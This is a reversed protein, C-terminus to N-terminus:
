VSRDRPQTGACKPTGAVTLSVDECLSTHRATSGAPTALIPHCPPSHCAARTPRLALSLELRVVTRGTQQPEAQIGAWRAKTSRERAAVSPSLDMGRPVTAREPSRIPTRPTKGPSRGPSDCQAGEPSLALERRANGPSSLRNHPPSAFRFPSGTGQRAHLLPSHPRRPAARWASRQSQRRAAQPPNPFSDHLWRRPRWFTRPVTTRNAAFRRPNLRGPFRPVRRARM